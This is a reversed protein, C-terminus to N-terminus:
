YNTINLMNEHTKKAIYRRQLFTELNEAWKKILKNKKQHLTAHLIKLIECILSIM